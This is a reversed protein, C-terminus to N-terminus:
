LCYEIIEEADKRLLPDGGSFVIEVVGMDKLIDLGRKIEAASLEEQEQEGWVNCGVCRYNCKRTILWQAHHPKNPTLSRAAINAAKSLKLNDRL